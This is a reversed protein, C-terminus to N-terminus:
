RGSVGASPTSQSSQSGTCTKCSTLSNLKTRHDGFKVHGCGLEFRLPAWSASTMNREVKTVLTMIPKPRVHAGSM